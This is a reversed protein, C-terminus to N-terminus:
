NKETNEPSKGQHFKSNFFGRKLQARDPTWFVWRARWRPYNVKGKSTAHARAGRACGGPTEAAARTASNWGSGPRCPTQLRQDARGHCRCGSSTGLLTSPRQSLVEEQETLKHTHTQPLHPYYQNQVRGRGTIRMVPPTRETDLSFLGWMNLSLGGIYTKLGLPAQM